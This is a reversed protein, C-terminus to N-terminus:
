VSPIQETDVDKCLVWREKGSIGLRELVARYSARQMDTYDEFGHRQMLTQLKQEKLVAAQRSLSPIIDQELNM